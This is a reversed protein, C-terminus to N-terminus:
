VVSSRKFQVTYVMPLCQLYYLSLRDYSLNPRILKNSENEMTGYEELGKKSTNDRIMYLVIGWFLVLCEYGKPLEPFITWRGEMTGTQSLTRGTLGIYCSLITLNHISFFNESKVTSVGNDTIGKSWRSVKTYRKFVLYFRLLVKNNM